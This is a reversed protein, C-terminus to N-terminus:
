QQQMDAKTEEAQLTHAVEGWCSHFANAAAANAVSVADCPHGKSIIPALHQCVV